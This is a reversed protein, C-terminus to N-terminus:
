CRLLDDGQDQVEGAVQLDTGWRKSGPEKAAAQLEPSGRAAAQPCPRHLEEGRRESSPEDMVPRSLDEV